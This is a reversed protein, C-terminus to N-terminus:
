QIAEENNKSLAEDLLKLAGGYYGDIFELTLIPEYGDETARFELTVEREVLEAKGIANVIANKIEEETAYENNEDLEKALTYLDPAYIRVTAVGGTETENFSLIEFGNREETQSLVENPEEDALVAEDIVSQLAERAQEEVPKEDKANINSWWDKVYPACVLVLAVVIALVAITILVKKM